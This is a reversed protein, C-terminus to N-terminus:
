VINSSHPYLFVSDNLNLTDLQRILRQQDKDDHKKHIIVYNLSGTNKLYIRGMNPKNPDGTSIHQRLEKWNSTGRLTTLAADNNNISHLAAILGEVKPFEEAILRVSDKFVAINDFHTLVTTLLTDLRQDSRARERVKSLTENLNEYREQLRSLEHQIEEKGQYAERLASIEEEYDEFVTYLDQNEKTLERVKDIWILVESQYHAEEHLNLESAPLRPTASCTFYKASIARVQDPEHDSSVRIFFDYHIGNDAPRSSQDLRLVSLGNDALHRSLNEAFSFDGNFVVYNGFRNVEIHWKTESHCYDRFSLPDNSPWFIKHEKKNFKDGGLKIGVEETPSDGVSFLPYLDGGHVVGAYKSDIRRVPKDYAWKLFAGEESFVAVRELNKITRPM